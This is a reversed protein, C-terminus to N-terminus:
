KKGLDEIADIVIEAIADHGADTPHICDWYVGNTNTSDIDASVVNYGAAAYEAAVRVIMTNLGELTETDGNLLHEIQDANTAVSVGTVAMAAPSYFLDMAGFQGLEPNFPGACTFPFPFPQAPHGPTTNGNAIANPFTRLVIGSGKVMNLIVTDITVKLNAEAGAVIGSIVQDCIALDYYPGNMNCALHAPIAEAPLVQPFLMFGLLDNGGSGIEVVTKRHTQLFEIAAPLQVDNIQGSTAGGIATNLHELKKNGPQDLLYDFVTDTYGFGPNENTRPDGGDDNGDAGYGYTYSAGIALYGPVQQDKKASATVAGSLIVTAALVCIRFTKWSM